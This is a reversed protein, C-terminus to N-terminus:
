VVFYTKLFEHFSLWTPELEGRLLKEDGGEFHVIFVHDTFTNLVIVSNASLETLILYQKLFNHEMRASLTHSEIETIDLLEFGLGEEWFPGEYRNYFSKFTDSPNSKLRILSNRVQNKDSRKYIDEPLIGDLYDLSNRM